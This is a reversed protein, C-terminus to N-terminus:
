NQFETLSAIFAEQDIQSLKYQISNNRLASRITTIAVGEDLYNTILEYLAEPSKGESTYKIENSIKSHIMM